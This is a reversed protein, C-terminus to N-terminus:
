RYSEQSRSAVGAASPGGFPWSYVCCCGLAIDRSRKEIPFVDTAGTM